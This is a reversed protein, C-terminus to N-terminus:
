KSVHFAIPCAKRATVRSWHAAVALEAQTPSEGALATAGSSDTWSWGLPAISVNIRSHLTVQGGGNGAAPLNYIETGPAVRPEALAWAVAGRGFLVTMYTSGPLALGDDIVVAMGRFTKFPKGQSNPIFEILDQKSLQGYVYSHMAIGTVDELRDGLTLATDIVSQASINAATGTGASIDVVMDGSNNAVNANIIGHLSAVLRAQVQREWYAVVRNQLKALADDGSLEAALSMQSWSSHLFSKRIVQAGSTFKQPTALVTPDDSTIDAEVDPLDNWYPATFQNAGASLQAQIEGNPVMVGSQSFASSVVSNQITYATFEAPVVVDALQTVPM